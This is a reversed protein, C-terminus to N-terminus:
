LKRVIKIIKDVYIKQTGHDGNILYYEDSNKSAASMGIIEGTKVKGENNYYKVKDWM